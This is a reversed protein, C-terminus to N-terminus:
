SAVADDCRCVFHRLMAHTHCRDRVAAATKVHLGMSTSSSSGIIQLLESLRTAVEKQKLPDPGENPHFKSMDHIATSSAMVSEVSIGNQLGDEMARLVLCVHDESARTEHDDRISPLNDDGSTTAM